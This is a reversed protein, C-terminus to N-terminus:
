NTKHEDKKVQEKLKEWEIKNKELAEKLWEEM